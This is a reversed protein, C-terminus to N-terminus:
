TLYHKRMEFTRIDAEMFTLLGKQLENQIGSNAEYENWKNKNIRQYVRYFNLVSSSIRNQFFYPM